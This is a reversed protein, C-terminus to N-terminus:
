GHNAVRRPTTARLDHVPAGPVMRSWRPIAMSLVAGGAPRVSRSPARENRGYLGGPRRPHGRERRDPSPGVAVTSSADPFWHGGRRRTGVTGVSSTFDQGAWLQHPLALGAGLYAYLHLLHWSEYRLRRRAARLSTIVVLVLAFTGAIALLMAPYNVIFDWTQSVVNTAAAQAYGATILVIHALMLNFSSFGVWRHWRTLRDRGISREFWPIRAMTLLQILLLDSALLGTIRGLSTTASGPASTETLGGGVLWLVVVSIVSAAALWIAVSAARREKLVRDAPQYVLDSARTSSGFPASRQPRSSLTRIM